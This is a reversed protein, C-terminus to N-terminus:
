NCWVPTVTKKSETVFVCDDKVMPYLNQAKYDERVRKLRNWHKNVATYVKAENVESPNYLASLGGYVWASYVVAVFAQGYSEEGIYSEYNNKCVLGSGYKKVYDNFRDFHLWEKDRGLKVPSQSAMKMALVAIHRDERTYSGVQTLGLGGMWTPLFWPMDGAERLVSKHEELFVTTLCEKMSPPCTDMLKTHLVGLDTPYLRGEDGSAARKVAHLLGLNVYPVLEWRNDSTVRYMTSNMSMFEGSAYTKGLSKEFGFLRALEEWVMPFESDARYATECDDGNVWGNFDRMRVEGEEDHAVEYAWRMLTANLVCLIPFSTISGMLQGRQQDAKRQGTGDNYVYTHGTLSRLFLERLPQNTYGMKKDNMDMLENAVLESCWSYLGDTAASYDGSHFRYGGGLFKQFRKNVLEETIPTGILEFTSQRSLHSWLSQQLPKLCFYTLPPGKSICRIKLAEKLGVVEVLPEELGAAHLLKWYMAKYERQFVTTNLVLGPVEKSTTENDKEDEVGKEGYYESVYNYLWTESLQPDLFDEAHEQKLNKCFQNFAKHDNIEGYTGNKARTRNYNSSASPFVPDTQETLSFSWAKFLEQVTRRIQQEVDRRGYNRIGREIHTEYTRTFHFKRPAVEPKATTMVKVNDLEAARVMDDSARPMGKKSLLVSCTFSMQLARNRKMNRTFHYFPGGLLYKPSIALAGYNFGSLEQGNWASFFDAIRIKFYKVWNLKSSACVRCAHYIQDKIVKEDHACLDFGYTIFVEVLTCVCDYIVNEEETFSGNLVKRRTEQFNRLRALSQKYKRTDTVSSPIQPPDPGSEMLGREMGDLVNQAHQLQLTEPEVAVKMAPMGGGEQELPATACALKKTTGPAPVEALVRSTRM